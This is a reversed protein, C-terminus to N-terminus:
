RRGDHGDHRDGMLGMVGIARDVHLIVAILKFRWFVGKLFHLFINVFRTNGTLFYLCWIQSGYLMYICM